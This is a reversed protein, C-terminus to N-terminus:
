KCILAFGVINEKSEKKLWAENINIKKLPQKYFVGRVDLKDMCYGKWIEQIIFLLYRRIAADIILSM